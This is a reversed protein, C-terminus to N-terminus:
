ISKRLTINQNQKNTSKMYVRLQWKQIKELRTKLSLQFNSPTPFRIPQRWGTLPNRVSSQFGFEFDTSKKENPKTKEKYM